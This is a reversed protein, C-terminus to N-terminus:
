SLAVDQVFEGGQEIPVGTASYRLRELGVYQYVRERGPLADRVRRQMEGLRGSAKWLALQDWRARMATRLATRRRALSM